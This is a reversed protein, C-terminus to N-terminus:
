NVIYKLLIATRFYGAKCFSQVQQVIHLDLYIYEFWYPKSSGNDTEAKKKLERINLRWFM